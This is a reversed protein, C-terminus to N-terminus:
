DCYDALETLSALLAASEGATSELILLNPTPADRFFEVAAAAGGKHVSLLAKNMRRDIGADQIAKAVDDTDCFAQIAVRPVPAIGRADPEAASMDREANSM